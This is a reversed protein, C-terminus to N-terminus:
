SQGSVFATRRGARVAYCPLRDFPQLASDSSEEVADSLFQSGSCEFRLRHALPQYRLRALGSLESWEAGWRQFVSQHLHGQLEHQFGNELRVIIRGRKPESASPAGMICDRHDLPLDIRIGVTVRSEGEYDFAVDLAAEVVDVMMQQHFAHPPPDSVSLDKVEDACENLCTDHGFSTDPM